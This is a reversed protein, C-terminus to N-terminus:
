QRTVAYYHAQCWKQLTGPVMKAGNQNIRRLASGPRDKDLLLRSRYVARNDNLAISQDFDQVAEVPRNVTQKLIGDYLYATPDNPDLQKAISFQQSDLPYRKEAFYTKGLYARLLASNSDLAVSKLIM